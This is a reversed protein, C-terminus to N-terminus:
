RIIEVEEFPTVDPLNIEITKVDEPPLPFKYWGIKSGGPDMEYATVELRGGTALWENRSDQLVHYKKAGTEDIFYVSHHHIDFDVDKEGTNRFKFFLTLHNSFRMRILDVEIGDPGYQTQIAEKASGTSLCIFILALTFVISLLHKHGKM